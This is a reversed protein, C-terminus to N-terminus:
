LLPNPGAPALGQRQLMNLFDLLKYDHYRRAIISIGFPLGDPSTFAPINIVPVGCMTWVLCTDKPAQREDEPAERGSSLTILIDFEKLMKDAIAALSEQQKLAQQYKGVTIGRGEQVQQRFIDSVEGTNVEQQFYYSLSKHYIIRHTDYASDFHWPADQVNWFEGLRLLWHDLAELAYIPWEAQCPPRLVGIKKVRRPKKLHATQPYDPGDVRCIDLMTRLLEPTQAFFGVTDLTDATKLIGTRPILGFSPKMAYVGCYSAPRIISGATQTGLAAHAMGCAVAVASGSSSTGPTRNLNHPNKTKGPHHVAFEASVTKGAIACGAEKLKSVVRADNGPTFDKWIPSGMETSCQATNIVDKVGVMLGNSIREPHYCEWAQVQPEWRTYADILSNSM